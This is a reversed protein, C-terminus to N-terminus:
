RRRDILVVRLLEIDGRRDTAVEDALRALPSTAREESLQEELRDGSGDPFPGVTLEVRREASVLAFGIRAGESASRAHEAIADVVPYLEDLRDTSFHARAALARSIRGLVAGLLETPSLRVVVDGDLGASWDDGNLETGAPLSVKSTDTAFAMRVETGRGPQSSFSAEQSLASIVALGVGMRDATPAITRIGGGKDRVWVQLRDPGIEFEVALEGVADGYAHMVVNNCAESVATKLDDLLEPELQLTEGIGAVM